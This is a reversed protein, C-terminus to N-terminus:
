SELKVTPSKGRPDKKELLVIRLSVSLPARKSQHLITEPHRAARNTIWM